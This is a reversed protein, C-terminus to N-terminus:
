GGASGAGPSHALKESDTQDYVDEIEKVRESGLEECAKDFARNLDEWKVSGGDGAAKYAHVLIEAASLEEDDSAYRELASLAESWAHDQNDIGCCGEIYQEGEHLAWEYSENNLYRDYAKVESELVKDILAPNLGHATADVESIFVWGIQGSDWRCSFPTTSVMLGSHDYLYLPKIIALPGVHEAIQEESIAQNPWPNTEQDGLDYRGHACWMTTTNEYETRPNPPDPDVRVSAIFKGRREEKINPITSM